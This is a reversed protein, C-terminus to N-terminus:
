RSNLFLCTVYGTNLGEMDVETNGGINLRVCLHFCLHDKKDKHDALRKDGGGKGQHKSRHKCVEVPWAASDVLCSDVFSYTSWNRMKVLSKCDYAIM